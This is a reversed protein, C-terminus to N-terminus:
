FGVGPICRVNKYKEWSCYNDNCISNMYLNQTFEDYVIINEKILKKVILQVFFLREM